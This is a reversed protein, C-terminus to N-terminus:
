ADWSSALGGNGMGDGRPGDGNVGARMRMPEGSELHDAIREPLVAELQAAREPTIVGSEELEAVRQLTADVVTDVLTQLEVGQQEALEALSTGARVASRIEEPTMQLVDSVAQVVTGDAGMRLGHAVRAGPGYGRGQAQQEQVQNQVTTGDAPPTGPTPAAAVAVGGIGLTGIVAAAAIASTRKRM